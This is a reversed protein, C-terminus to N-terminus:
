PIEEFIEKFIEDKCPYIVDKDIEAIIWDGLDYIYIHGESTKYEFTGNKYITIYKEIGLKRLDNQFSIIDGTWQIATITLLKRKYKKLM